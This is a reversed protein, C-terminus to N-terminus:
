EKPFEGLLRIERQLSLNFIDKVAQKMKESLRYIDSATAGAEAIIINAHKSYLSAKGESFLKAGAEELFWGAAQRRGAASTPEINRFISGACHEIKWDPHKKERLQLIENRRENAKVRDVKAVKLEARLLVERSEKLVSTRYAFNLEEHSVWRRFGSYSLLEARQLVDGIQEGFAGANGVIAGGVTGPIGSLYSLDGLGIENARIVLEDLLIEGGVTIIEDTQKIFSAEENCFRVIIQEVGKDSVLLNTGQGIVLFSRQKQNLYCITEVLDNLTRCQILAPTCGGVQFSTYNSLPADPIVDFRDVLEKIIQSNSKTERM